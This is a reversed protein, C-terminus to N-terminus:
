IPQHKNDNNPKNASSPFMPNQLQKSDAFFDLELLDINNQHQNAVSFDFVPKQPVDVDFENWKSNIKDKINKIHGLQSHLKQISQHYEQLSFDQLREKRVERLVEKKEERLEDKM